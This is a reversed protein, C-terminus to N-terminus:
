FSVSSRKGQKTIVKQDEWIAIGSSSSLSLQFVFSTQRLNGDRAREEIIKGSLTYDPLRSYAQDKFFEKAKQNDAALPDEPGGLNMTTTTQIKGTRLLAIRIRKVLLDTDIQRGTNNKIRSIALLAPENRVSSVLKDQDIVDDMLSNVLTDAANSFDQINIRDISVIMEPGEPNVYATQTACGGLLLALLGGLCVIRLHENKV